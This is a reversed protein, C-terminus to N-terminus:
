VPISGKGTDEMEIIHTPLLNNSEIMAQIM